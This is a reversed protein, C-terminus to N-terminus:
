HASFYDTTDPKEQLVVTVTFTVDKTIDLSELSTVDSQGDIKWDTIIVKGYHTAGNKYVQYDFIQDGYVPLHTGDYLYVSGATDGPHFGDKGLAKIEENGDDDFALSVASRKFQIGMENEAAVSTGNGTAPVSFFIRERNTGSFNDRGFFFGTSTLNNKDTLKCVADTCDAAADQKMTDNSDFAVRVYKSTTTQDAGTQITVEESFVKTSPTDMVINSVWSMDAFDDGLVAAVFFLYTKGAELNTANGDKDKIATVVCKNRGLQQGETPLSVNTSDLGECDLKSLLTEPEDATALRFGDGSGTDTSTSTEDDQAGECDEDTEPVGFAEFFDSNDGCRPFSGSLINNEPVNYPYNVRSALDSLTLDGMEVGFVHYGRLEHEANFSNWVLTVKVDEGDKVAISALNRPPSLEDRDATAPDDSSGGCALSLSLLLLTSVKILM